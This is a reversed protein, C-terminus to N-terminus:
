GRLVSGSDLSHHAGGDGGGDLNGPLNQVGGIVQEVIDVLGKAPTHGHDVVLHVLMVPRLDVLVERGVVDLEGLQNEAAVFDVLADLVDLPNQYCHLLIGKAAM